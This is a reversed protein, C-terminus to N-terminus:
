VPALAPLDPRAVRGYLWALEEWDDSFSDSTPLEIGPNDRSAAARMRPLSTDVYDCSWDRFTPGIDLDVVHVELEQWRRGVLASLPREAGSVDRTLADWAEDPLAIWTAMLREASERVDVVLESASRNAGADIEAARGAYGGAYQEVIEGRLAAEARRVHSDANRAVHTLLHGVTWGPLHTPRGATADDITAVVEDFRRQAAEVRALDTSPRRGIETV